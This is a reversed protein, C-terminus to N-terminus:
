LSAYLQLLEQSNKEPSYNAEWSERARQRFGEKEDPDLHQFIRVKASLDQDDGVKFSLGNVGDRVLNKMNGLDSAIVPLGRSFAEIVVMGFTEYWVSPFILAAAEDILQYVQQKNRPGLFLINAFDQSYRAVLEDLPGTGVIRLPLGSDAFSKLLVPIGKEETLRGVYLYFPRAAAVIHDPAAFDSLPADAGSDPYCFNPKVVMKGAQKMLRSSAFLQRSHEGLVIFRDVLNWTGLKEHLVMALSTWFTILRSNLYVGQKVAQWPFGGSLSNLFLQNNHYLTGSPCLLRYNHLTMVMPIREKKVAYVVAASGSFHLNHLHVVDPHFAKIKSRTRRYSGYNFPLQALKALTNGENEFSLLEVENGAERLLEMENAVVSDEGGRLKYFTHVILIRM